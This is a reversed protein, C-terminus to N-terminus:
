EVVTTTHPLHGFLSPRIGKVSPKILEIDKQYYIPIMPADVLAIDDAQEYNIRRKETDMSSDAERCLADLTDNKYNLKNENGYSALLTSLFNEPDIYDAAWRMHLTPMKKKQHETLYAGWEKMTPQLKIGLNTKLQQCVAEAVIKIDPRGDRFNFPLEPFGKGDPFGAASLLEKAKAVNYPHVKTTARSGLFGPPLISDARSNVGGLVEKIIYDRDIAMAIAQRVRVDRLAPVETCNLGVYFMSARDWYKLDAKLTADSQVSKLDARELAVLDVAGTKYANLRATADKLIPREIKELKVAGGHYEKNALLTVKSDPVISEFKFPGTGVM